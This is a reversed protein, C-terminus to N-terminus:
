EPRSGKGFDVNNPANYVEFGGFLIEFSYVRLERIMAGKNCTTSVQNLWRVVTFKSPTLELVTLGM